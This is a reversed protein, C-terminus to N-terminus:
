KTVNRYRQRATDRDQQYELSAYGSVDIRHSEAKKLLFTWFEWIATDFEGALKEDVYNLFRERALAAATRRLRPKRLDQVSPTKLTQPLWILRASQGAKKMRARYAAQREANTKAM